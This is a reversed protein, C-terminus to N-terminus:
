LIVPCVVCLRTLPFLHGFALSFVPCRVKGTSLVSMGAAPPAAMPSAVGGGVPASGDRSPHAHVLVHHLARVLAVDCQASTVGVLPVADMGSAAAMAAANPIAAESFLLDHLIWAQVPALIGCPGGSTQRQAV